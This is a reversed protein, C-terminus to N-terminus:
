AANLLAELDTGILLRMMISVEFLLRKVRKETMGIEVAIQRFCDAETYHSYRQLLEHERRMVMRHAPTMTMRRVLELMRAQQQINEFAEDEAERRVTDPAHFDWTDVPLIFWILPETSPLLAPQNVILM